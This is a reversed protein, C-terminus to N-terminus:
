DRVAQCNLRSEETEVSLMTELFPANRKAIAYRDLFAHLKDRQAPVSDAENAGIMQRGIQRWPYYPISM